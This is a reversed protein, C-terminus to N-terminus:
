VILYVQIRTTKKKKPFTIYEYINKLTLIYVMHLTCLFLFTRFMPYLKDMFHTLRM